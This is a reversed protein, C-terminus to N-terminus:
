WHDELMKRTSAQDRMFEMELEFTVLDSATPKSTIGWDSRKLTGHASFGMKPWTNYLVYGNYKFQLTVPRTVGVMTFDGTMVGETGSTFKVSTSRFTLFRYPTSGIGASMDNGRLVDRDNMRMDFDKSGSDFSAPWIRAEIKTAEPKAPDWDYSAQIHSFRFTPNSLGGLHTLHFTLFAHSPDIMYHGAPAAKFDKSPVYGGEPAEAGSARLVFAVSLVGATALLLAARLRNSLSAIM